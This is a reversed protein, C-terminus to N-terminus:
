SVQLLANLIRRALWIRKQHPRPQPANDAQGLGQESAETQQKGQSHLTIPTQMLKSPPEGDPM